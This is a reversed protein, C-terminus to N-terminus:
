LQADLHVRGGTISLTKRWTAFGKRAVSVQHPGPTLAVMSPANGVFAGDIIIEAGVPNSDITLFANAATPKSMQKSPLQTQPGARVAASGVFANRAPHHDAVLSHSETLQPMSDAKIASAPESAAITTSKPVAVAAPTPISELHAKDSQAGGIGSLRMAILAAFVLVGILAPVWLKVEGTASQWWHTVPQDFGALVVDDPMNGPTSAPLDLGMNAAVTAVIERDAQRCKLESCMALTNFCLNNITRPTGGGMEAILELADDTFLPEGEYGAQGLRYSIYDKTEEATLLNLHCITSVRQRLQVLSENKLKDTLQPQGSLIIQLLKGQTNEFNTLLRVRELVADSLNQAEDIVVVCKRGAETEQILADSLQKHM